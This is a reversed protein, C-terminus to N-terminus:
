RALAQRQISFIVEILTGSQPASRIDFRARNAEVLARTLALSIGAGSAGGQEPSTSMRHSETAASVDQASLGAGTDRVRLAVDGNDTLATSVIVQGGAHNLRISTAILNLVVQRLTRTDATVHPLGHALSTRIIIRERNAQPQLTATCQEVVDNLAISTFSLDIKGTEARSLNSMDDILGAVREGSARIDKLYEIYRPNGVPGFQEGIMVDAFGIIANLPTRIDHSIRGIADSKANAATEARRRATALESETAKTQSQDIMRASLGGSPLRALSLSVSLAGGDRRRITVDRSQPSATSRLAGQLAELVAHRSGADFFESFSTGRLQDAGIGFM